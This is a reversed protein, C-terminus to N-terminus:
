ASSPSDGVSHGKRRATDRCIISISIIIFAIPRLRRHLTVAVINEAHLPSSLLLLLVHPRLHLSSQEHQVHVAVDGPWPSHSSTRKVQGHLLLGAGNYRCFLHRGVKKGPM